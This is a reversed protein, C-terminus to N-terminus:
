LHTYLGTSTEFLDVLMDCYIDNHMEVSTMVVGKTKSNRVKLFEVDYLDSGNLSIQVMNIGNKTLNGPVRFRVSPNDGKFFSVFQKAGTMMAFRGGGLQSIITQAVQNCYAIDEKTRDTM